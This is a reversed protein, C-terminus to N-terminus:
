YTPSKPLELKLRSAIQYPSSGSYNRINIDAGYKVLQIISLLERKEVALHLPTEGADNKLDIKAGFKLLIEIINNLGHLDRDMRFTRGIIQHLPSCGDKDQANPDAGHKLIKIM